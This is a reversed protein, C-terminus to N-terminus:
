DEDDEMFALLNAAREPTPKGKTAKVENVITADRPRSLGRVAKASRKRSSKTMTARNERLNQAIKNRTSSIELPTIDVGADDIGTAPTTTETSEHRSNHPPPPKLNLSPPRAPPPPFDDLDSDLLEVEGSLGNNYKRADAATTKGYSRMDVDKGGLKVFTNGLPHNLADVKKQLYQRAMPKPPNGVMHLSQAMAAENVINSAVNTNASLQNNSAM